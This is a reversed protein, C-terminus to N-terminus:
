IFLIVRMYQLFYKVSTFTADTFISIECLLFYFEDRSIWLFTKYHENNMLFQLDGHRAL